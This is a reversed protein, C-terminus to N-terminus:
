REAAERQDEHADRETGAREPKIAQATRFSV